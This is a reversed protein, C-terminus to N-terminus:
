KHARARHPGSTRPGSHKPILEDGGASCGLRDILTAGELCLHDPTSIAERRARSGGSCSLLLLSAQLGQQHVRQRNRGTNNVTKQWTCHLKPTSKVDKLGVNEKRGGRKQSQVTSSVVSHELHTETPTNAASLSLSIELPVPSTEFSHGSFIRSDQPPIRWLHYAELLCSFISLCIFDLHFTQTKKVAM